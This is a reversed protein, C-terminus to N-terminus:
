VSRDLLKCWHRFLRTRSGVRDLCLWDVSTNVISLAVTRSVAMGLEHVSSTGYPGHDALIARAARVARLESERQHGWSSAVLLRNCMAYYALFKWETAVNGFASPLRTGEHYSGELAFYAVAWDDFNHIIRRLDEHLAPGAPLDQTVVAEVRCFLGPVFTSIMCLRVSSWSRPGSTVDPDISSALADQWCPQSLFCDKNTLMCQLVQV